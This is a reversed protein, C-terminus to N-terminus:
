RPRRMTRIEDSTVFGLSEYLHVAAANDAFVTLSVPRPGASRLTAIGRLMLARGLGGDRFRRDVVISQVYGEAGGLLDETQCFGVVAGAREAIWLHFGSAARRLALDAETLPHFGETGRYGEDHLRIWDSGDGDRHPRFRIGAPPDSPEPADGALEMELSRVRIVFGEKELMAIGAPWSGRCNSQLTAGSDQGEVHRLLATAVGYRRHRPHVVIRFHRVGDPQLTSTLVGALHGGVEVVAFDRAGRNFSLQTFERWQEEGITRVSPDLAHTAAFFAAVARPDQDRYRRIRV